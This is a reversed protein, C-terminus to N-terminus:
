WIVCCHTEYVANLDVNVKATFTITINLIKCEQSNPNM